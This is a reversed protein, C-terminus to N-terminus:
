RTPDGPDAGHARLWALRRQVGVYPDALLASEYHRVASPFDGRLEALEGLRRQRAGRTLREVGTVAFGARELAARFAEYCHRLTRSPDLADIVQRQDHLAEMLSEVILRLDAPPELRVPAPVRTWGAAVCQAIADDIALRADVAAEVSRQVAVSVLRDNAYALQVWPSIAHARRWLVFRCTQAARALTVDVALDFPDPM